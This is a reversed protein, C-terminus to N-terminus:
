FKVRDVKMVEAQVKLVNNELTKELLELRVNLELRMGKVEIDQLTNQLQIVPIALSSVAAQIDAIANSKGSDQKIEEIAALNNIAVSTVNLSSLIVSAMERILDTDKLLQNQRLSKITKPLNKALQLAGSLTNLVSEIVDAPALQQGSTGQLVIVVCCSIILFINM